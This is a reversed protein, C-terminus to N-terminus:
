SMTVFVHVDCFHDFISLFLTPHSGCMCYSNQILTMMTSVPSAREPPITGNNATGTSYDELFEQDGRYAVGRHPTRPVVSFRDSVINVPTNPAAVNDLCSLLSPLGELDIISPSVHHLPISRELSFSDDGFTGLISTQTLHREAQLRSCILMLMM